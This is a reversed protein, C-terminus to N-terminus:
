KYFGGNLSGAGGYIQVQTLDTDIRWAQGEAVPIGTSADPVTVGDDTYRIDIEPVFDIFEADVPIGGPLDALELVDDAFEHTFNGLAVPHGGKLDDTTMARPVGDDLVQLQANVDVLM